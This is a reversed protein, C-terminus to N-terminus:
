NKIRRRRVQHHVVHCCGGCNTIGSTVVSFWFTDKFLFRTTKKIKFNEENRIKKRKVLFLLFNNQFIKVNMADRKEVQGGSPGIMQHQHHNSFKSSARKFQTDHSFLLSDFNRHAALTCLFFCVRVTLCVLSLCHLSITTQTQKNNLLYFLLKM